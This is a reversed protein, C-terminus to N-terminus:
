LANSSITKLAGNVKFQVGSINQILFSNKSFISQDRGNDIVLINDNTTVALDGM